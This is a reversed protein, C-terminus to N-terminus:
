YPGQVMVVRRDILQRVQDISIVRAPKARKERERSDIYRDSYSSVLSLRGEMSELETTLVHLDPHTGADFLRCGQCNDCYGNGRNQPDQCLLYKGLSLAFECKGIGPQGTILLGHHLSDRRGVM